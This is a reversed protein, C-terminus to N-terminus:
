QMHRHHSTRTHAYSHPTYRASSAPLPLQPQQQSLQSSTLRLTTNYQGRKNKDDKPISFPNLPFKQWIYVIKLFVNKIKGFYVGWGLLCLFYNKRRLFCVPDITWNEKVKGLHIRSCGQLRGCTWAQPARCKGYSDVKLLFARLVKHLRGHQMIGSTHYLSYM